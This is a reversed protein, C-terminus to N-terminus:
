RGEAARLSGSFGSFFSNSVQAVGGAHLAVVALMALVVITGMLNFFKDVM